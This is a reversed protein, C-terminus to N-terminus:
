SGAKENKALQGLSMWGDKPKAIVAVRNFSRIKRDLQELQLKNKM